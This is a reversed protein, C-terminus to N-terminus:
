RVADLQQMVEVGGLFRIQIKEKSLVTVQEVIRHVLTDSYEAVGLDAGTFLELIERTRDQTARNHEESKEM